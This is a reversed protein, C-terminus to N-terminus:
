WDPTGSKHDIAFPRSVGLVKNDSSRLIRIYSNKYDKTKSKKMTWKKSGDNTTYGDYITKWIKGGDCSYEIKIPESKSLNSSTWKINYENSSKWTQGNSPSTINVSPAQAETIIILNKTKSVGINNTVTLDVNFKGVKTFTHSPNKETSTTGDGFNWLYTLGEGMSSDSFNVALPITGSTKNATFRSVVSILKITLKGYEDSKQESSVDREKADKTKVDIFFYVTKEGAVKEEKSIPFNFSNKGDTAIILTKGDSSISATSRRLTKNEKEGKKIDVQDGDLKKKESSPINFNKKNTVCYDIDIDKLDHSSRNEVRAETHFAFSEGPALEADVKEHWSGTDYPRIHHHTIHVNSECIKDSGSCDQDIGDDCIDIAGPYIAKNNDSCDGQTVTYGDKDKDLNLSNTTPLDKKDEEKGEDEIKSGSGSEGVLISFDEAKSDIREENKVNNKVYINFKEMFGDKDVVLGTPKIITFFNNGDKDANTNLWVNLGWFVDPSYYKSYRAPHEISFKRLDGKLQFQIQFHAKELDKVKKFKIKTVYWKSESFAIPNKIGITYNNDSEDALYNEDYRNREIYNMGKISEIDERKFLNNVDKVDLEFGLNVLSNQLYFEKSKGLYFGVYLAKEEKSVKLGVAEPIHPKSNDVGCVSFSERMINNLIIDTLKNYPKAEDARSAPVFAINVIFVTVAFIVLKKTYSIHKKLM